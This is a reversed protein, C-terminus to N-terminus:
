AIAGEKKIYLYVSYVLDLCLNGRGDAISVTM